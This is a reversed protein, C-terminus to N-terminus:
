PLDEIDIEDADSDDEENAREVAAPDEDGINMDPDTGVVTPREENQEDLPNSM